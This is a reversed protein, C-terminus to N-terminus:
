DESGKAGARKESLAVLVVLGYHVVTLLVKWLCQFHTLRRTKLGRLVSM